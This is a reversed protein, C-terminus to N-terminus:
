RRKARWVLMGDPKYEWVPRGARDLEVAGSTPLLGSAVLTNGNPLRQVSTPRQFPAKWVQRGSTDYEAVETYQTVLVHNNPLVEVGGYVYMRGVPFSRTEKGKADLWVCVGNTSLFVIEGSRLKQAAVIDRQARPFTFVEKVQPAQRTDLELLQNRAVIFVNGNSLRQVGNAMPVQRHWIVRNNSTDRESVQSNSQEVIVVRDRGVVVADVPMQLGEIKWVIEKKANLEIVKGVIARQDRM